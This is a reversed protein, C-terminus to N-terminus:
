LDVSERYGRAWEALTPHTVHEPRPDFEILQEEVLVCEVMDLYNRMDDLRSVIGEGQHVLTRKEEWTKGEAQRIMTFLSDAHKGFYLGGTLLASVGLREGNVKLNRLVDADDATQYRDGEGTYEAGKEDAIKRRRQEARASVAVREQHNM